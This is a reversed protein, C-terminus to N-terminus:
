QSPHCMDAYSLVGVLGDLTPGAVFLCPYRNPLTQVLANDDGEDELMAGRLPANLTQCGIAYVQQLPEVLDAFRTLFYLSPLTAQCVGDRDCSGSM